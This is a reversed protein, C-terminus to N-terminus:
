TGRAELAAIRTLADQLAATLFAIDTQYDRILRHGDKAFGDSVAVRKDDSPLQGIAEERGNALDEQAVFGVTPKGDLLYRRPRGRLVWDVGEGPTLDRASDKLRGDSFTLFGQAAIGATAHLAIGWTWSANPASVGTTIMYTGAGSETASHNCVVGGTFTGGAKPMYTSAVDASKAFGSPFNISPIDGLDLGAVQCKLALGSWGMYIKTTTQGTGGGQQIPAFGLADQKGNLADGVQTATQFGAPNSAPYLSTDTPHTHDHRSYRPSVGPLGPGDMLPVANSAQGAVFATTAISTTSDDTVRTPATPNGTLAPSSILSILNGAVQINAGGTLSTASNMQSFTIATTGVTVAGTPNCLWNTNANAPGGSHIPVFAGTFEAAEDMSTHRTLVYAAGATGATTVTYLGNKAPASEDKVLVMNNLALAIGDVTLIGVGTGTLTAGVGLTGNAYNNAPLATTTAADATPKIQMGSAFGDVYNKTAADTAALPNALNTIKNNGMSFDGTPTALQEPRTTLVFATTAIQTGSVGNDSTPATPTGTLHPSALPALLAEAALARANETTAGSGIIGEIADFASQLNKFEGRVLASLGKSHSGPNGSPTYYQNTV